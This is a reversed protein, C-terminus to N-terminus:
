SIWHVSIVQDGGPVRHDFKMAIERNIAGLFDRVTHVGRVVGLVLGDFDGV